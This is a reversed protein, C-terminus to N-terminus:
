AHVPERGPSRPWIESLTDTDTATSQIGVVRWGQDSKAVEFHVAWRQIESDDARRRSWIVEVAAGVINYVFVRSDPVVTHTYGAAKLPARNM